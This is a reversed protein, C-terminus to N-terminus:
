WSSSKKASLRLQAMQRMVKTMMIKQPLMSVLEGNHNIVPFPPYKNGCSIMHM